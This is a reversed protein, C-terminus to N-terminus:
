SQQADFVRLEPLSRFRRYAAIAHPVVVDHGTIALRAHLQEETKGSVVAHLVDTLAEPPASAKARVM